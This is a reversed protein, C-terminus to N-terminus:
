YAGTQQHDIHIFFFVGFYLPRSCLIHGRKSDQHHQSTSEHAKFRSGSIGLRVGIELDRRYRRIVCATPLFQILHTETNVEGLFDGSSMPGFIPYWRSPRM